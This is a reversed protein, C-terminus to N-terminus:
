SAGFLPAKKNLKNRQTMICICEAYNHWEALWVVHWEAFENLRKGEGSSTAIDLSM